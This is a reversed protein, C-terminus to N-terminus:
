TGEMAKRVMASQQLELYDGYFVWEERKPFVQCHSWLGDELEESQEEKVQSDVMHYFVSPDKEGHTQNKNKQCGCSPDRVGGRVM